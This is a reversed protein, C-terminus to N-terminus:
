QEVIEVRRNRARGTETSNSAVPALCSMGHAELQGANIGYNTTLEHMVATARNISLQLNNTYDGQNDTHGVIFVIKDPHTKLYESINTLAAESEPKLEAKGSDFFLGELVAHGTLDLGKDISQATVLGTKIEKEEIIDMSTLIWDLDDDSSIYLVVYVDRGENLGKAVLYRFGMRGDPHSFPGGMKNTQSYYVNRWFTYDPPQQTKDSWTFLTDFNAQKIAIEYNKYIEFVSHDGTTNYQIRTIEGELNKLKEPRGNKFGLVLTYQDYNKHDYYEIVSGEFRSIMPHDKSDEFDTERQAFVSSGALLAMLIIVLSNIISKM